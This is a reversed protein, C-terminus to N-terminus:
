REAPAPPREPCNPFARHSPTAFRTETRRFGLTCPPEGTASSHIQPAPLGAWHWISKRTSMQTACAEAQACDQPMTRRGRPVLRHKGLTPFNVPQDVRLPTPKVAAVASALAPAVWVPLIQGMEWPVEPPVWQAAVLLIHCQAIRGALRSGLRGASSAPPRSCALIPQGV